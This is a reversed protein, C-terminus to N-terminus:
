LLPACMQNQQKVNAESCEEFLVKRQDFTLNRKSKNWKTSSKKVIATLPIESETKGKHYTKLYDRFVSANIDARKANFYVAFKTTLPDPQKIEKGNIVRSKLIKRDESSMSGNRMNMMIRQMDPCGSFRHTGKLEVMVNLAQEWYIGNRNKYITDGGISEIQCFDGLFCIPHKGYIHEHCETFARLNKSIGGLVQNYSGFSIEDIISLRTDRFFQIDETTAYDNKRLYQFVLAATRGGIEMAASGTIATLLITRNTFELGINQSFQRSYAVL